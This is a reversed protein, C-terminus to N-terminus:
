IPLSRQLGMVPHQLAASPPWATASYTWLKNLGTKIGMHLAVAQPRAIGTNTRRSLNKRTGAM